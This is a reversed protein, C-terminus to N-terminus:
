DKVNLYVNKFEDKRLAGYKAARDIRKRANGEKAKPTNKSKDNAAILKVLENLPIPSTTDRDWISTFFDKAPKGMLLKKETEDGIKEFHLYPDAVINFYPLLSKEDPESVMRTKLLKLYRGGTKTRGIAFVGDAFNSLIKSGAMNTKSLPKWEEIKPTHAIVMISINLERKLRTLGDMIAGAYEAEATQTSLFSLNDLIMIKAKTELLKDRIGEIVNMSFEDSDVDESITCRVLSKPFEANGYRRALQRDSLEFDFYLVTQPEIDVEMCESEGNAIEYAIQTALISKGIGSDAFLFVLENEWWFDGWLRHIPPKKKGDEIVSQMDSSSFLPIQEVMDGDDPIDSGRQEFREIDSEILEEETM